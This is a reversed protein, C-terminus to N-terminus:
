RKLLVSEGVPIRPLGFIAKFAARAESKNAAHITQGRFVYVFRAAGTNAKTQTAVRKAQYKDERKFKALFLSFKM